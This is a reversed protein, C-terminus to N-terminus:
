HASAALKPRALVIALVGALLAASFAYPLTQGLEYLGGGILPGITRALAQSASNLGAVAGQDDDGAALSLASTVGPLLLGQGLGQLVLAGTLSAFMQAFLFLVFGSLALPLGVRVFTMPAWKMKRVLFGQAAVAVIGYILLAGGVPVATGVGDPLGLRDQFLFPVTQEMAVSALTAAFGVALLPWVKRILGAEPSPVSASRREPEPLRLAVFIANLFAIGASFFVPALLTDFLMALGAGIGPGFIVGLGFAMGIVAMASTRSDRDSIDAAYAQATPLTAASLGGGVLRTAILLVFLLTGSLTGKLGLAAVVGFAFFSLGFGIIGVLLVPKRGIKESRRGWFTSTAFQMFAYAASLSTTELEGLGLERGLPAVIPFLVSLGLISNFLAVFLLAMPRMSGATHDM